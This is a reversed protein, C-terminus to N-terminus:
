QGAGAETLVMARHTGPLTVNRSTAFGLAALLADASATWPVPRFDRRRAWARFAREQTVLVETVRDRISEPLRYVLRQVIQRTRSHPRTPDPPPREVAPEAETLERFADAIEAWKVVQFSDRVPDYRVFRVMGTDGSRAHLSRSIEFAVRQIGSPRANARTYCLLDEVDVWLTRAM